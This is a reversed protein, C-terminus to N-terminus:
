VNDQILTILEELSMAYAQFQTGDRKDNVKKGIIIYDTSIDVQDATLTKQNAILAPFNIIDM